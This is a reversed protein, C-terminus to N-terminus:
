ARLRRARERSDYFCIRKNKSFSIPHSGILEVKVPPPVSSSQVSSSGVNDASAIRAATGSSSLRPPPLPRDKDDEPNSGIAHLGGAVADLSTSVGGGMYKDLDDSALSTRTSARSLRLSASAVRDVSARYLPPRSTKAATPPSPPYVTRPTGIEDSQVSFSAPATKALLLETNDTSAATANLSGTTAMNPRPPRSTLNLSTSVQQFSRTYGNKPTTPPAPTLNSAIPEFSSSMVSNSSGAGKQDILDFRTLPFVAM